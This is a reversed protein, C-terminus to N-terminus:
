ALNEWIALTERMVGAVDVEYVDQLMKGDLVQDARGLAATRGEKMLMVNSSLRMALSIDHLVGVITRNQEAAWNKLYDILEFQFKLDLHNTPEDLLIIQPDQALTRALFVRQLQGGSLTGLGRHRVDALNVTALCTEVFDKDARSPIGLLGQNHLYRGMMVADYVTYSFYVPSIQGLMAVYAARARPKMASACIGDFEVTGRFPLLGAIVKLLTTKGCGNPGIIALNEGKELTLNIDHVVDAGGYGAFIGALKLM